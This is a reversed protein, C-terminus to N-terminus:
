SSGFSISSSDDSDPEEPGSWGFAEGAFDDGGSGAGAPNWGYSSEQGSPTSTGEHFTSNSDAM